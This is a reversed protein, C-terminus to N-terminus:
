KPSAVSFSIFPIVRLPKLSIISVSPTKFILVSSSFIYNLPVGVVNATAALCWLM